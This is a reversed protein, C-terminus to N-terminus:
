AASEDDKVKSYKVTLRALTLAKQRHSKLLLIEGAILIATVAYSGWVYLAYGGMHFFESWSNWNM